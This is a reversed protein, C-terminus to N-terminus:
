LRYGTRYAPREYRDTTAGSRNKRNPIEPIPGTKSIGLVPTEFDCRNGSNILQDLVCPEGFKSVFIVTFCVVSNDIVSIFNCVM